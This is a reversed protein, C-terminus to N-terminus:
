SKYLFRMEPAFNGGNNFSIYSDKGTGDNFYINPNREKSFQYPLISLNPKM